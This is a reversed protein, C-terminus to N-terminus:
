HHKSLVNSKTILDIRLSLEPAIPTRLPQYIRSLIERPGHGNSKAATIKSLITVLSQKAAACQRRPIINLRFQDRHEGDETM